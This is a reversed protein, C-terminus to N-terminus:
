RHLFHKTYTCVGAKRVCIEGESFKRYRAKDLLKNSQANVVGTNVIFCKSLEAYLLVANNSIIAM